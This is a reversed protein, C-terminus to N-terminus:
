ENVRVAKNLDVDWIHLAAPRELLGLEWACDFYHRLGAQQERGFDSSLHAFYHRWYSPSGGITRVAETVLTEPDRKAQEKSAQFAAHLEAILEGCREAAEKRLAWVAFSMWHGTHRRWLEGLDTVRYEGSRDNDWHARIADDGILLAADAQAMMDPLSPAADFYTPSADYYKALLIKLLNVSTASTTPLAFTGALTQALPQRHFLLISNVHGFASVSLDPLLVYRDGAEGYAFSSIPGLDVEGRAMARNLGSPVEAVITTREAFREYDFHHFVPWVNAYSIRGIRIKANNM